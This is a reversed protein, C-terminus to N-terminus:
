RAPAKDGRLYEDLQGDAALARFEVLKRGAFEVFAAKSYRACAESALRTASFPLCCTVDFGSGDAKQHRENNVTAFYRGKTHGCYLSVTITDGNDDTRVTWDREIVRQPKGDYSGRPFTRESRPEAAVDAETITTSM